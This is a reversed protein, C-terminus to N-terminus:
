FEPLDPSLRHPLRSWSVVAALFLSGFVHITVHHFVMSRAGTAPEIYYITPRPRPRPSPQNCGPVDLLKQAPRAFM